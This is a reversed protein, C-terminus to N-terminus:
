LQPMCGNLSRCHVVKLFIKFLGPNKNSLTSKGPIVCKKRALLKIQIDHQNCLQKIRTIDDKRSEDQTHLQISQTNLQTVYESLQEIEIQLQEYQIKQQNYQEQLQQIKNQLENNQHSSQEIQKLRNFETKLENFLTNQKISEQKLQLIENQFDNNRNIQEKLQDIEIKLKNYQEKLEQFEKEFENSQNSPQSNFESSIKLENKFSDYQENEQYDREKLKQIELQQENYCIRNQKIQEKFQINEALIEVFISRLPEFPCSKLHYSLQECSGTWSCKLDAATCSLIRKSCETNNHRELEGRRINEKGCAICQVRLDDLFDLLLTEKIPILSEQDDNPSVCARCSRNGNITKVPDVYPRSCLPCKLLAHISDENMYHYDTSRIM